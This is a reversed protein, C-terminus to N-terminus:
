LQLFEKIENLVKNRKTLWDSEWVILLKYGAKLIRENVHADRKHVHALM